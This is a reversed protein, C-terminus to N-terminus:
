FFTQYYTIFLADQKKVRCLSLNVGYGGKTSLLSWSWVPEIAALKGIEGGNANKGIRGAPDPMEGAARRKVLWWAYFVPQRCAM